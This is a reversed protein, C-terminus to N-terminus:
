DVEILEGTPVYWIYGKTEYGMKEIIQKYNRVQKIYSAHEEGFKYDIVTASNDEIVIRDPRYSTKVKNTPSKGIAPMIIDRENLIQKGPMFWSRKLPEQLQKHLAKRIKNGEKGSIEGRRIHKNIANEIDNPTKIASLIDHYVSGLKRGDSGDFYRQGMLRLHLREKPCISRYQQKYSDSNRKEDESIGANLPTKKGLSYTRGEADYRDALITYPAGNDNTPIDNHLLCNELIRGIEATQKKKLPSFIYLEDKARTFAVYALNLNDIYTHAQENYYSASYISDSLESKYKIPVVPINDFIGSTKAWLIHTHKSNHDMYWKCFPIIVSNFELGKSKHITMVRIANQGEPTALSRTHGKDHWWRLFSNLDTARRDTMQLVIDLFAQVYVNEDGDRDCPYLNIIKECLEYLPEGQLTDIQELIATNGLHLNKCTETVAENIPIHNCLSAIRCLVMFRTLPTQPTNLYDLISIILQVIHSNGIYLAEDSIVDYRYGDNLSLLYKVIDNGESKNRVLIAIDSLKAGRSQLDRITAATLELVQQKATTNEESDDTNEDPIFRVEVYGSNEPMKASIKQAADRYAMSLKESLFINDKCLKSLESPAHGFVSNNFRIINSSSRWNTDLTKDHLIDQNFYHPLGENLLKWDSNRWRYISQKVDGVLLNSQGRDISEKILPYFNKWQTVSTDQFEDIFFHDIYTGIKEYVFPTDDTKIINHLLENTDSLLLTGHEEQYNKIQTTIDNLIGLSYLYKRTLIATNYECYMNDYLSIIHQLLPRLDNSINIINSATVDDIKGKTYWKEPANAVIEKLRSGPIKKYEGKRWSKLQNIGSASGYRFHYTEIDNQKLLQLAKEATDNIQSEFSHKIDNLKKLFSKIQEKDQLIRQLTEQSEKYEEKFIEAALQDIKSRFQKYSDEEIQQQAYTVLWDLLEKNENKELEFFLRDTAESLVLSSDLEINYRNSIGIEHIFARTIQQFFRDITSINFGSFDHLLTYLQEAAQTQLAKIDSTIGDQGLLDNIYASKEPNHALIDLEKIIRQKMEDTAKNTFTVALIRRYLRKHEDSIFDHHLPPSLLIKIYEFTLRFTKGSGASARYINLM